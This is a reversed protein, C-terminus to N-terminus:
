ASSSNSFTLISGGGKPMPPPMIHVHVRGDASRAVPTGRALGARPDRQTSGGDIPEQRGDVRCSRGATGVRGVGVAFSRRNMSHPLLTASRQLPKCMKRCMDTVTGLGDNARIHLLDHGLGTWAAFHSMDILTAMTSELSSTCRVWNGCREDVQISQQDPQHSDGAAQTLGDVHDRGASALRRWGGVSGTSEVLGM